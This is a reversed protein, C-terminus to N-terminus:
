SYARLTGEADQRVAQAGLRRLLPIAAGAGALVVKTLADAWMARPACVSVSVSEGLPAGRRHDILATRGDRASFCGSSTAVAGNSLRLLPRSKEPSGPDRVRITEPTEGFVRLDGGANVVAAVVGQARLAAVACDVAFGKAIGGFDLWLSRRFRVQGDALLEVAHWNAERDADPAGPPRPLYGWDVLRAGICPDFLGDSARSLALSARLVRRLASSVRVPTRAAERNLRSLESAPDHFSLCAQVFAM